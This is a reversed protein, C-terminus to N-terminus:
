FVHDLLSVEAAGLRKVMEGNSASCLAVVTAGKGAVVQVAVSGVGGSAGNILVRMGEKIAGDRVMVATTQGAVGMLGSAERASVNPPKVAALEAPMTVYEALSGTGFFALGVSISGCVQTGVKIPSDPGAAVVDGSFDLGPVAQYRFPLWSPITKQLALDAPNLTAYQIKVLMNSGTPLAPVPVDTKLKLAALPDSSVRVCSWAKMTKPIEAAM